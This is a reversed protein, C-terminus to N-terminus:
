EQETANRIICQATELLDAGEFGPFNSLNRGKGLATLEIDLRAAVSLLAGCVELLRPAAAILRANAHDEPTSGNIRCIPVLATAGDETLSMREDGDCFISGAGNGVGVHWPGPTHTAANM